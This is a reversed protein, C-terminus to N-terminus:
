GSVTVYLASWFFFLFFFIGVNRLSVVALSLIGPEVLPRLTSRPHNGQLRVDSRRLYRACVLSTRRRPLWLPHDLILLTHSVPKGTAGRRVAAATLPAAGSSSSSSSSCHNVHQESSVWIACNQRLVCRSFCWASLHLHM